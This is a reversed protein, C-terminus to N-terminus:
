PQAAPLLKAWVQPSDGPDGLYPCHPVPSPPPTLTSLHPGWRCLLVRNLSSPPLFRSTRVQGSYAPDGPLALLRIQQVRFRSSFGGALFFDSSSPHSPITCGAMTHVQGPEGRGAAAREHPSQQSAVPPPPFSLHQLWM